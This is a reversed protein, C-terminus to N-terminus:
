WKTTFTTFISITFSRVDPSLGSILWKEAPLNDTHLALEGIALKGFDGGKPIQYRTSEVLLKYTCSNIKEVDKVEMLISGFLIRNEGYLSLKLRSGEQPFNLVGM